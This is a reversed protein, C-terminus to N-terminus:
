ARTFRIEFADHSLHMRVSCGFERALAEARALLPLATSGPELEGTLTMANIQEPAEFLVACAAREAALLGQTSTTITIDSTAM